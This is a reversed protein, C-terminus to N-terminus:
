KDDEDTSMLNESMDATYTGDSMADSMRTRAMSMVSYAEETGKSGRTYSHTNGSSINLSKAVTLADDDSCGLFAVTWQETEKMTKIIDACDDGSFERSQNEGGDTFITVFVHTNGNKLDEIIM